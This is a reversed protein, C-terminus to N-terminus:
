RIIFDGDAQAWEEVLNFHREYVHLSGANWYLDGLGYVTGSKGNIAQLVDRHIYDQWAYDNKYGYVADNSRMFVSAHLKGDRIYYQTSYTCMFDSMGNRKYDEHMSPRIYIMTARRSLPSAVLEDVVKTFQNGNENSYICWGYNSNIFGDKDSVQKWIAPPGGPIDNVNLSLSRYWELERKVYDQNVEGFISAEDALFSANIIEITKPGGKDVVFEKDLLKRVFEQQIDYVFNTIM